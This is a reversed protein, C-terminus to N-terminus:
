TWTAPSRSSAAARWRRGSGARWRACVACGCNCASACARCSPCWPPSRSPSSCHAASWSRGVSGGRRDRDRGSRRHRRGGGRGVIAVNWLVPAVYSLFFRRHANLVGLCWAAMVILGIGGAMIRILVVTLEHRTGSFGPAVIWTLPEALFIALLVLGGTLVALLGAVAGALRGAREEDGEDLVQAYVPIFAASLAGEGLLNQLLKPIRLAAGFADASARTGLFAGLVVERAVGSLRSLVVGTGVLSASRGSRRRRTGFGGLSPEGDGQLPSRYFGSM